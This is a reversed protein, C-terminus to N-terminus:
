KKWREPSRSCTRRAWSSGCQRQAGRLCDLADRNLAIVESDNGGVILMTLATVRRLVDATVLDPRGGCSAVASVRSRLGSAAILATPAGTSAGLYGLPLGDAVRENVVWETAAAVRASLLLTDFRTV